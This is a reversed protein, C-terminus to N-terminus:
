RPGLLSGNPDPVPAPPTPASLPPTEVPKLLDEVKVLMQSVKYDPLAYAWPGCKENIEAVRKIAAAKEDARAKDAAAKASDAKAPEPADAKPADPAGPTETKPVDAKPAEPTAPTAPAGASPPEEYSAEVAWWKKNDKTVMKATIVEGDFLRAEVLAEAKSFDMGAAPTVDDMILSSLSQGISTVKYEDKLQRGAPMNELTFKQDTPAAKGVKIVEPAGGAPTHAVTVSKVKNGDVDAISKNVWAMADAQVSLEGKALYTQADGDKKVYFRPKPAPANDGADRASNGVILAAVPKGAADLLEVHTGTAGAKEFDGLGLREYFEPKSTKPEVITAEALGGILKRVQEFDAPYNGRSEVVWKDNVKALVAEPVGRKVRIKAVSAIGDRLGPFLPAVTTASPKPTEHSARSTVMVSAAAAAVAAVAAVILLTKNRM